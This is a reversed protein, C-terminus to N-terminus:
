FTYGKNTDVRCGENQTTRPKNFLGCKVYRLDMQDGCCRKLVGRPGM